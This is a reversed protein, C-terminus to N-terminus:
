PQNMHAVQGPAPLAALSLLVLLPLKIAHVNIM